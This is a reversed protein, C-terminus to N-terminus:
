ESHNKNMLVNEIISILANVGIWEHEKYWQAYAINICVNNTNSMSKKYLFYWNMCMIQKIIGHGICQPFHSTQYLSILTVKASFKNYCFLTCLIIIWFLLM